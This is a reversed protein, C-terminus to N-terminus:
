YDWLGTCRYSFCFFVDFSIKLYQFTFIFYPLNNNKQMTRWFLEECLFFNWHLPLWFSLLVRFHIYRKYCFKRFCKCNWCVSIWWMSCWLKLTTKNTKRSAHSDIIVM